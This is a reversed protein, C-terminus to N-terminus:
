GFYSTMPASRDSAAHIWIHVHPSGRFFWVLSPGELRWNDWVQDGGLDREQYFALSCQELGGQKQLADFVQNQYSPRYPEVLSALTADLARRQETGMEKVAIGPSQTGPRRFRIDSERRPEDWPVEPTITTRDIGGANQYLPLNKTQLAQQQQPGDLLKYVENARLAQNWFINGPHGFKEYFGSPQHGHTIPGGFASIPQPETTARVTLHFGSVVCQCRDSGPMGFIAVAQDGGWPKGSDDSGQKQLKDVWENTVVSRMVDLVLQRQEDTYFSSGLLQPTIHWANSVHTRLEIGKPDPHWLPKRGYLINVRFDWDFCMQARQEASLSQYLAMIPRASSNEVSASSGPGAAMAVRDLAASTLPSAATAALVSKLFKRRPLSSPTNNDHRLESQLLRM